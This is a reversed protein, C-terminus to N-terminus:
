NFFLYYWFTDSFQPFLARQANERSNSNQQFIQYYQRFRQETETTTRLYDLNPFEGMNLLKFGTAAEDIHRPMRNYGAKELLPLKETVAEADKQLLLWAFQYEVAFVNTSDAKLLPELNAEPADSLVFFDTKPKLQKKMGLEPHNNITEDNNLMKEFDRAEKRYFLSQNLIEIYKSAVKYNGNILETKILMKLGEPTYGRMVMYEYAWRHAENVLGVTYYFYGGRRLVEGITEWKLFLTEGDPSQPFEFLRETLQGTEALAINNLFLILKNTTPFTKNFAIIEDFKREYFLKEVHFYHSNKRDTRQSLAGALILIILIPSFQVWSVKLTSRNKSRNFKIKFLLPFLGILGALLVFEKTQMGANLGSFPYQLLTKTTEFFLFEKSIFFSLFAVLLLTGMHIWRKRGSCTALYFSFMMLFLWAFGGTLFYWVPFLLVTFWLRNKRFFRLIAFFWVLQMLIGLSNVTQFQYHSHLLVLGAGVLFPLFYVPKGLIEKGTLASLWVVLLLIFSLIAAGLVEFRYFATLFVALYQLFGGPQSLHKRLFEESVLFLSLKEQYFFIYGAFWLFFVYTVLFFLLYPLYTLIRNHQFYTRQM